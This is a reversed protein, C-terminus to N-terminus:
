LRPKPRAWGLPGHPATIRCGNVQLRVHYWRFLRVPEPMQVIAAEHYAFDYAGLVLSNDVARVGAFYGKFSDEGVEAESVRALIGVSGKGLLQLDGEVIYDKWKTSGTLLKSGRDNSDNRM